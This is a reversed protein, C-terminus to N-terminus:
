TSDPSGKSQEYFAGRKRGDEVEWKEDYTGYYKGRGLGYNPLYAINSWSSDKSRVEQKIFGPCMCISRVEQKIFGPCMCIPGTKNGNKKDHHAEDTFIIIPGPLIRAIGPPPDENCYLDIGEQYLLGSALDNVM